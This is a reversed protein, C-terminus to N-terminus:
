LIETRGKRLLYLFFPAGIIATVVGVPLESPTRLTRALTDSLLLYIGGTFFASPILIRHDAGLSLRVIHPIILGVFGILGSMSVVTATLLSALLLILKNYVKAKVGLQLATEDGLSLINLKRSLFFSIVSGILVVPFVVELNRYSAQSLDGMLWFVASQIESRSAISILFMVIASFFANIIVGGLLLASASMEGDLTSIFLLILVSLLAGLFSFVTIYIGFSLGLLIAAIAGVASGGSVGLIYPEALPNKLIVQFLVGAISLSAGVLFSFIRRPIRIELLIVEKDSEQSRIEEPNILRRLIINLADKFSIDAVGVVSSFIIALFSIVMLISIVILVKRLNLVEMLDDEENLM